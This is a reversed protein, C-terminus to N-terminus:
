YSKKSLPSFIGANESEEEEESYEESGDEVESYESAEENEVPEFESDEGVEKAEEQEESDSDDQLFGWAKQELFGELDERIETLLNTWNLNVTGESYLINVENLWDKIMELSEAPICGIRVYNTLDKFILVMDFNRLSFNVREFHVVEIDALSVVFFPVETLNVLCNVTPLLLVNSKQPVGYFGLERYPIDFEIKSLQEVQEAFRKFESNLKARLQRERNEQELEDMDQLNRRRIDLDDAALGVESYFQIDKAKKNGVMIPNHLHFHVLVILENECPQYFAHKINEYIVDVKEGKASTFRMGNTHGELTGSTKKGSINPRVSVNSLTPRKTKLPILM